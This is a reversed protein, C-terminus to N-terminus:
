STLLPFLTEVIVMDEMYIADHEDAFFILDERLTFYSAVKKKISKFEDMECHCRMEMVNKQYEVFFKSGSQLENELKRPKALEIMMQILAIATLTNM